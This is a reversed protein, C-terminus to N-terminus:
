TNTSKEVDSWKGHQEVCIKKRWDLLWDDPCERTSKEYTRHEPHRRDAFIRWSQWWPCTRPSRHDARQSSRTGIHYDSVTASIPRRSPWPMRLRRFYCLPRWNHGSMAPSRTAPWCHITWVTAQSRWFWCCPRSRPRRPPLWEDWSLIM